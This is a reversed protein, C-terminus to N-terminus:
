VEEKQTKRFDITLSIKNNLFHKGKLTKKMQKATNGARENVRNIVEQVLPPPKNAVSFPRETKTYEGGLRM